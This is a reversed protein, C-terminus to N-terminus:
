MISGTLFIRSLSASQARTIPSSRSHTEGEQPKPRWGERSMGTSLALTSFMTSAALVSYARCSACMTPLLDEELKVWGGKVGRVRWRSGTPRQRFGQPEGTPCLPGGDCGTRFWFLVRCGAGAGGRDHVRRATGAPKGNRRGHPMTVFITFKAGSLLEAGVVNGRDVGQQRGCAGIDRRYWGARCAISGAKMEPQSGLANFARTAESNGFLLGRAPRQIRAHRHAGSRV